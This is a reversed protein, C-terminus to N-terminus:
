KFVGYDGCGRRPGLTVWGFRSRSDTRAAKPNDGLLHFEDNSRPLCFRASNTPAIALTLFVNPIFGAKEQVELIRARIDDPVQELKPVPYGSIAPREIPQKM